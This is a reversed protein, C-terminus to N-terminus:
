CVKGCGGCMGGWKKVDGVDRKVKGVAGMDKGVNKRVEGVGEVSGRHVKGCRGWVKEYEGSKRKGWLGVVGVGGMSNGVNRRVERCM